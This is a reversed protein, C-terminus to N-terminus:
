LAENGAVGRPLALVALPSVIAILAIGPCRPATTV